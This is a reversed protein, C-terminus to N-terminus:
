LLWEGGGGERKGLEWDENGWEGVGNDVVTHQIAEFGWNVEMGGIELDGDLVGVEEGAMSAVDAVAYVAALRGAGVCGRIERDLLGLDGNCISVVCQLLEDVLARHAPCWKTPPEARM